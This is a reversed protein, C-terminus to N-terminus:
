RKLPQWYCGAETFILSFFPVYSKGFPKGSCDSSSPGGSFTDLVWRRRPPRQLADSSHPRRELGPSVCACPRLVAQGGARGAGAGGKGRM